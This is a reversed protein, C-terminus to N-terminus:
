FHYQNNLVVMCKGTKQSNSRLQVVSTPMIGVACIWDIKNRTTMLVSFCFKIMLTAAKKTLIILSKM